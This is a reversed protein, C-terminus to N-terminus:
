AEVTHIWSPLLHSPCRHDRLHLLLEQVQGDSLLDGVPLLEPTGLCPPQAPASSHGTGPVNGERSDPSARGLPWQHRGVLFWRLVPVLPGTLGKGGWGHLLGRGLPLGRTVRAPGRIKGEVWSGKGMM